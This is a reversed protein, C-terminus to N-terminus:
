AQPKAIKDITNQLYQDPESDRHEKLVNLAAPSKINGLVRIAKERDDKRNSTLLKRIYPIVPDGIQVLARGAPDDVMHWRMTGTLGTPLLDGKVFILVLDPACNAVKLDGALKIENNLVVDTKESRILPCLKDKVADKLEPSAAEIEKVADDSTDSNQLRGILMSLDTQQSLGIDPALLGSLILIRLVKAKM